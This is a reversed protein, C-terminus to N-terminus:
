GGMRQDPLCIGVGGRRASCTNKLMKVYSYKCMKVYSYLTKHSSKQIVLTFILFHFRTHSVGFFTSKQVIQKAVEFQSISVYAITLGGGERLLLGRGQSVYSFFSGKCIYITM